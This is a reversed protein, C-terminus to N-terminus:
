NKKAIILCGDLLSTRQVDLLRLGAGHLLAQFEDRTRVKGGSEIMRELDQLKMLRDVGNREDLVGEIIMLTSERSMALGINKLITAVEADPWDHLVHKILYLDGGQPVSELFSGGVFSCRDGVGALRIRESVFDGQVPQDLDHRASAPQTRLIATMLSATGGGVDVVHRHAQFDIAKVLAEAQWDTVASIFNVFLSRAQPMSKYHEYLPQGHVLEFACVGSKLMRVDQRVRPLATRGLGTRLQSAVSLAGEYAFTGQADVSIPGGRGRRLNEFGALARMVQHLRTPDTETSQALEEITKPGSLLLDAVGLKAVVFAAQGLWALNLLSFM